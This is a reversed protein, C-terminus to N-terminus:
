DDTPSLPPPPPCFLLHPFSLHYVASLAASSQWSFCPLRRPSNPTFRKKFRSASFIPTVINPHFPQFIRCRSTLMTVDSDCPTLLLSFASPQIASPVVVAPRVSSSLLFTPPLWKKHKTKFPLAFDSKKLTAIIPTPHNNKLLFVSITTVPTPSQTISGPSTFITCPTILAFHYIIFSPVPPISFATQFASPQVIFASRRRLARPSIEIHRPHPSHSPSIRPTQAAFPLQLACAKTGKKTERASACLRPPPPSFAFDLNFFASHRYATPIPKTMQQNLEDPRLPNPLMSKLKPTNKQFRHVLAFTPCETAAFKREPRFNGLPIAYPPSLLRLTKTKGHTSKRCPLFLSSSFRRSLNM